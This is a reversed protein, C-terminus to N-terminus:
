LPASQVAPLLHLAPPEVSKPQALKLSPAPCDETTADIDAAASSSSPRISAAAALLTWQPHREVNTAGTDCKGYNFVSSSTSPDPHLVSKISSSASAWQIWTHTGESESADCTGGETAQLGGSPAAYYHHYSM